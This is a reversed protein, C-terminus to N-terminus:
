VSTRALAREVMEVMAPVFVRTAKVLVPGCTRILGHAWPSVSWCTKILPAWLLEGASVAGRREHSTRKGNNEANATTRRKLTPAALSFAGEAFVGLYSLM